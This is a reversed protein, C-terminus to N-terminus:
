PEESEPPDVYERQYWQRVAAEVEPAAALQRAREPNKPQMASLVARHASQQSWGAPISNAWAWAADPEDAALVWVLAEACRDREEGRPLGDVWTSAAAADVAAWTRLAAPGATKRAAGEPLALAWELAGEPDIAGLSKVVDVARAKGGDGAVGSEPMAAIREAWKTREAASWDTKGALAAAYLGPRLAPPFELILKEVTAERSDGQTGYGQYRLKSTLETAITSRSEWRDPLQKLWAITRPSFKLSRRLQQVNDTQPVTDLWDWLRDTFDAGPSASGRALASFLGNRLGEPQQALWQLLADPGAHYRALMAPSFEDWVRSDQIWDSHEAAWRVAADFDRAVAAKMVDVKPEKYVDNDRPMDKYHALAAAPSTGAWAILAARLAADRQAGKTLTLCWEYAAAGDRQAWGAAVGSFAADQPAGKPMSTATARAAAPNKAAYATFAAAVEETGEGNPLTLAGAVAALKDPAKEAVEALLARVIEPAAEGHLALWESAGAPDRRLWEHSLSIAHATQKKARLFDFGAAADVGAWETLLTRRLARRHYDRTLSQIAEYMAPM